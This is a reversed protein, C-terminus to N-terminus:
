HRFCSMLESLGLRALRQIFQIEFHLLYLNCWLPSCSSGMPIGLSQKWVRDGLGVFCHNMLWTHLNILMDEFLSFCNGYTPRSTNWAVHAANGVVDVCIWIQPNSWPHKSHEHKFGIRIMHVIADALNYKGQLPITEYCRAIDAIFIKSMQEPLNLVVEIVSNVLYFLSADVHLIKKYGTHM